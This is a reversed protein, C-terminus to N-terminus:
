GVIEQNNLEELQQQIEEQTEAGYSILIRDGENIVYDRIGDVRQGNIYFKLTYDENTCFERGDQFIFCENDVQLNLTDFLYGLTVGTAHRHITNGDQGEFHIWSSKIQYAPLSFDFKDGFVRVLISAHAHDSGLVGADEPGGPATTQMTAFTYGAYGVIAAIVGLIGVAILTNKRKERSRKEKFNERKEERERKVKKGM